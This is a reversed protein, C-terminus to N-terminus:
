CSELGLSTLLLSGPSTICDANAKQTGEAPPPSPTFTGTGKGLCFLPSPSLSYTCLVTAYRLLVPCRCGGPQEPLAPFSKHQSQRPRLAQRLKLLGHNQQLSIRQISVNKHWIYKWTQVKSSCKAWINQWKVLVPTSSLMSKARSLFLCVFFFTKLLSKSTGSSFPM